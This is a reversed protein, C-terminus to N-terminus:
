HSASNLNFYFKKKKRMSTKLREKFFQFHIEGLNEEAGEQSLNTKPKPPTKKPLLMKM